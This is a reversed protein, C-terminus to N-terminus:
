AGAAAADGSAARLVQRLALTARMMTQLPTAACGQSRGSKCDRSRLHWIELFFSQWAKMVDDIMVGDFIGLFAALGAVGLASAVM